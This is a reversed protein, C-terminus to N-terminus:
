CHIGTRHKGRQEHPAIMNQSAPLSLWHWIDVLTWRHVSVFTPFSTEAYNWCSHTHTYTNQRGCSDTDASHENFTSNLQASVGCRSQNSGHSYGGNDNNAKQLEWSNTQFPQLKVRFLRDARSSSCNTSASTTVKWKARCDSIILFFFVYGM